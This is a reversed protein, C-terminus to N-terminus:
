TLEPLLEEEPEVAATKNFAPEAIENFDLDSGTDNVDV